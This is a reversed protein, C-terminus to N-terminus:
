LQERLWNYQLTFHIMEMSTYKQVKACEWFDGWSSHTWCKQGPLVLGSYFSEDVFACSYTYYYYKLPVIYKKLFTEARKEVAKLFDKKHKTPFKYFNTDFDNILESDPPFPGYRELIDTMFKCSYVFGIHDMIKDSLRKNFITGVVDEDVSPSFPPCKRYYILSPLLTTGLRPSKRPLIIPVHRHDTFPFIHEYTVRLSIIHDGNFCPGEEEPPTPTLFEDFFGIENFLNEVTPATDTPFLRYFNNSERVSGFLSNLKRDLNTSIKRKFNVRLYTILSYIDARHDERSNINVSPTNWEQELVKFNDFMYGSICSFDFDGILAMVGLNPLVYTKDYIVYTTTPKTEDGGGGGMSSTSTLFINDDKLDNHRFNPWKTFIVALTYCIQFLFIKFTRDFNEADTKNALYDRLTGAYCKEMFFIASHTMDADREAQEPLVGHIISHAGIPCIIHPSIHTEVLYKWFFKLIRPEVHESRFPTTNPDGILNSLCGSIKAVVGSSEGSATKLDKVYGYEGQGIIDKHQLMYFPSELLEDLSKNRKDNPDHFLGEGAQNTELSRKLNIRIKTAECREM